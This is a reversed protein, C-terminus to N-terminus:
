SIQDLQNEKDFLVDELIELDTKLNEIESELRDIKKQLRNEEKEQRPDDDEYKDWIEDLEDNLEQLDDEKGEIKEKLKEIRKEISKIEAELEAAEEESSNPVDVDYMLPSSINFVQDKLTGNEEHWLVSLLNDAIYQPDLESSSKGILSIAWNDNENIVVVYFKHGRWTSGKGFLEPYIIHAPAVKFKTKPSYKSKPKKVEKSKWIETYYKQTGLESEIDLYKILDDMMDELIGAKKALEASFNVVDNNSGDNSFDDLDIENRLHASVGDLEEETLNKLRFLNSSQIAQSIYESESSIAVIGISTKYFYWGPREAFPKQRLIPLIKEWPGTRNDFTWSDFTAVVKSHEVASRVLRNIQDPDLGFSDSYDGKEVEFAEPYKDHLPILRFDGDHWGSRIRKIEKEFEPTQKYDVVKFLGSGNDWDDTGSHDLFNLFKKDPQPPKSKWQTEETLEVPVPSLKRESSFRKM